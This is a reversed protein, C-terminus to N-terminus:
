KEFWCYVVFAYDKIYVVFLFVLFVTGVALFEVDLAVSQILTSSIGIMNTLAQQPSLKFQHLLYYDLIYM